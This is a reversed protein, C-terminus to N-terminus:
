NASALRGATNAKEYKYQLCAQMLEGCEESVIGAQAAIHDPWNPHKKKARKLEAEVAEWINQNKM